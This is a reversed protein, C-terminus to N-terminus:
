DNDFSVGFDVGLVQEIKRLTEEPISQQEKEIRYWNMSSFGIERCLALLPKTSSKRAAKIRDGLGPVDVSIQRTVKMIPM